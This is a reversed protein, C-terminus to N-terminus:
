PRTALFSLIEEIVGRSVIILRGPRQMKARWRMAESRVDPFAEIVAKSEEPTLDRVEDGEVGLAIAIEDARPDTM